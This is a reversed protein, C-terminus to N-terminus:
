DNITEPTILNLDPFYSRFRRADRTLVVAGLAQAHAGILFDPLLSPREGGRARYDRYAQGALWAGEVDVDVLEILLAQLKESLVTASATYHGIEAAVVPGTVLEGAVRADELAQMSWDFWHPDRELVDLAINTDVYIM